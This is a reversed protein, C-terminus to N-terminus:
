GQMFSEHRLYCKGRIAIRSARKTCGICLIPLSHLLTGLVYLIESFYSVREISLFRDNRDRDVDPDDPRKRELCYNSRIILFSSLLEKDFSKLIGCRIYHYLVLKILTSGYNAPILNKVKRM